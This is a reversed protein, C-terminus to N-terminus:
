AFNHSLNRHEEKNTDQTMARLLAGSTGLADASFILHRKTRSREEWKEGVSRAATHRGGPAGSRLAAWPSRGPQAPTWGADSGERRWIERSPCGERCPGAASRGRRHWANGATRSWRPTCVCSLLYSCAWRRPSAPSLHHNRSQNRGQRNTGDSTSTWQDRLRQHPPNNNTRKKYYSLILKLFM